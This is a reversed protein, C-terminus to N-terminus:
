ASIAPLTHAYTTTSQTCCLGFLKETLSFQFTTRNIGPTSGGSILSVVPVAKTLLGMLPWRFERNGILKHSKSMRGMGQTLYQLAYKKPGFAYALTKSLIEPETLLATALNNQETLGSHWKQKTFQLNNIQNAM